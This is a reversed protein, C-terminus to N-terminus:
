LSHVYTAIAKIQATTLKRRFSPMVGRGNTVTRIVKTTSVGGSIDAADLKRGLTTQAKGNAGHCRACNQMYLTRPGNSETANANAEVRNFLFGIGAVLSVFAVAFLKILKNKTM